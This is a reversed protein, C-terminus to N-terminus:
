SPDMKQTTGPASENSNEAAASSQFQQCSAASTLTELLNANKNPKAVCLCRMPLSDKQMSSQKVTLLKFGRRVADHYSCTSPKYHAIGVECQEFIGSSPM